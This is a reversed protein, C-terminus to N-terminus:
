KVLNLFRMNTPYDNNNKKNELYLRHAAKRLIIGIQFHNQNGTRRALSFFAEAKDLMMIEPFAFDAREIVGRGLLYKFLGLEGKEKLLNEYEIQTRKTVRQFSM